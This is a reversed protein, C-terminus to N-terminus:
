GAERRQLLEALLDRTREPVANDVELMAIRIANKFSRKQASGHSKIVIGNLGVLSAGNYNGPDIRRKLAAFIPYACLALIKRGLNRFAEQKIDAKVM